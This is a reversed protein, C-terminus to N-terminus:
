NIQETIHHSINCKFNQLLLSYEEIELFTMPVEKDNEVIFVKQSGNNDHKHSVIRGTSLIIDPYLDKKIIKKFEFHVIKNQYKIKKSVSRNYRM